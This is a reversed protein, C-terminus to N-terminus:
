ARPDASPLLAAFRDALTPRSRAPWIASLEFNPLAAGDRIASYTVGDFAFAH